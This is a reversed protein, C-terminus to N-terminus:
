RRVIGMRVMDFYREGVKYEDRLVGEFEFGCKLNRAQSSLNDRRVIVWLKHLDLPPAFALRVLDLLAESGYGKKQEERVIAMFVRGNRAPWYIQNISCQGIYRDDVFMSWARDNKSAILQELYKKEEDESITTQRNAFYQMVERDNVWKMVHPLHEIKLAEFRIM